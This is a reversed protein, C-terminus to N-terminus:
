GRSRCPRCGYASRACRRPRDPHWPRRSGPEGRRPGRAPRRVARVARQGPCGLGGGVKSRVASIRVHHFAVTVFAHRNRGLPRATGPEAPILQRRGHPDADRLLDLRVLVANRQRRGSRELQRVSAVLHEDLVVRPLPARKRVRGVLRGPRADGRHVLDPLPGLQQQLHLLRDRAFVPTQPFVKDQEGVEVEGGILRQGAREGVAADRSDGVLRDLGVVAPQRQERRHALDGPPEGRLHPRPRELLRLAPAADQEAANGADRGGPHDHQPPPM